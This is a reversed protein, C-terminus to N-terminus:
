AHEEYWTICSACTPCPVERRANTVLKNGHKLRFPSLTLLPQSAAKAWTIAKKEACGLNYNKWKFSANGDRIKKLAANELHIKLANDVAMAGHVIYRAQAKGLIDEIATVASQQQTSSLSAGSFFIMFLGETIQAFAIVYEEDQAYGLNLGAIASAIRAQEGYFLNAKKLAGLPM